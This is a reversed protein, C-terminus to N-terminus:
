FGYKSKRKRFYKDKLNGQVANKSRPLKEVLELINKKQSPRTLAKFYQEILQSLSVDHKEAFKKAQEILAEDITINLRNKMIDFIRM